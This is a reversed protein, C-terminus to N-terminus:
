VLLMGKDKWERNAWLLSWTICIGVTVWYRLDTNICHRAPIVHSRQGAAFCRFVWSLHPDKTVVLLKQIKNADFACIGYKRNSLSLKEKRGSLSHIGVFWRYVEVALLHLHAKEGMSSYRLAMFTCGTRGRDRVFRSFLTTGAAESCIVVANTKSMGQVFIVKVGSTINEWKKVRYGDRQMFSEWIHYPYHLLSSTDM